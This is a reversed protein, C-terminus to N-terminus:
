RVGAADSARARELVWEIGGLLHRRFAPEDFSESTHGGGTYFSRGGFREHCWAIPHDAGMRGGEYTSEDLMMLRRVAGHPVSQFDYWEDTRVWRDGLHETSPHERDIVEIAAEQVRPHSMFQAGVLERYFPWDYETDAAAHIGVFGGGARVFREMAAEQSLNLVDGTTSLFVVADFRRLSDDNFINANDTAVVGFGHQKGLEELARVGDRISAHRFGATKTFVLVSPLGTHRISRPDPRGPIRNLTYWAEPSWIREGAASTLDAHLYVCRDEKLGEVTLVVVMGDPSPVARTVRLSEENIKPGGYDPTAIYRWQAARYNALDALQETPVPETFRIAFGNPTAHVSHFEFASDGTPELRQLGTRTGRWSWTAQEGICGVFIEGRPGWLLRNVGGEFGQSFRFVAGQVQGEVEELFVRRIGGLKLEGVYMQGAFPGDEIWLMETPSNNVENQPLWVAPPSPPQDAFLAPEGGRPYRDTLVRTENYHGYFRGPKVHNIKNAPMWGGQNEAVFVEGAPSVVIGNPTRFGGAVYEISGDELSIKMLTGRNPPNPGNIGRIEGKLIKHGAAGISTSLTAYLFGEHEELGFTFHHYNDSTWGSAFRERTEFSGDGDRDTMKTIEDRQAVYLAGDVYRLGLPHYFGEAFKEVVIDNPDDADLNTFAWLDGNPATLRVGNNKPEFMGIILRGDPLLEMCGVMPDFDDPHITTLKWGPHVAELPIRDGPRFGAVEADLRKVGPSVVRTVGKETRLSAPPVIEFGDADPRQWELRLYAGGTNEFMLVRLPVLGADLRVRGTMPLPAHLGKNWIVTEGDIALLSGDDSTLRFAYEGPEDVLLYGEVTAIFRDRMPGFADDGPLDITPIRRDVNPTMGQAPEHIHELASGAQYMRLSVGPELESADPQAAAGVGPVWLGLVGAVGGVILDRGPLKGRTAM